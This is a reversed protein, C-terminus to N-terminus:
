KHHRYKPFDFFANDLSVFDKEKKKNNNGLFNLLVIKKGVYYIPVCFM